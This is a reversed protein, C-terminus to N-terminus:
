TAILFNNTYPLPIFIVMYHFIISSIPIVFRAIRLYQSIFICETNHPQPSVFKYKHIYSIRAIGCIITSNVVNAIISMVPTGVCIMIGPGMRAVAAYTSIRFGFFAIQFKHTRTRGAMVLFTRQAAVAACGNGVIKGVGVAASGAMGHSACVAAVGGGADATDVIYVGAATGIVLVVSIAIETLMHVLFAAGVVCIFVVALNVAYMLMTRHAAFAIM